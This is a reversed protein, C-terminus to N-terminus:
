VGQVCNELIKLTKKATDDWSFKQVRKKGRSIYIERLADDELVEKMGSAIDAPSYPNVLVGADGVVEPLSTIGSVIVPTGAYMAELPPFGFGEYLSPYVFLLANKYLVAKENDAVPGIFYINSYGYHARAEAIIKRYSWGFSGAVVLQLDKFKPDQTLVHFAEVLGTINKRPEVTGLSLIYKDAIGYKNKVSHWDLNGADMLETNIGSYVVSIKNQPVSYSNELDNKTSESVTIIKQSSLAQKKPSIYKHWLRRRVDFFDKFYEFSIDHFTTVKPCASSVPAPLIHPSFFVDAGGVMNDLKPLNLFRCSFTFLKNPYRFFKLRVNPYELLGGLNNQPNKSNTFLVFEHHPAQTFMAPLLNRIYESVGGYKSGQLARVDIAIKM